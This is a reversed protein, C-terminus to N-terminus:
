SSPSARTSSASFITPARSPGSVGYDPVFRGVRKKWSQPWSKRRLHNRNPSWGITLVWNVDISSLVYEYAKAVPNLGRLSAGNQRQKHDSLELGFEGQRSEGADAGSQSHSKVSVGRLSCAVGVSRSYSQVRCDNLSRISRFRHASATRTSM